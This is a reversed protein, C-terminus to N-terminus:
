LSNPGQALLHMLEAQSQVECKTFIQKLHTRVTNPSVRLSAASQEVNRGAFLHRAVEAQARTLEYLERLLEVSIDRRGNTAYIYAALVVTRSDASAAVPSVLVFYSQGRSRKLRAAISRPAGARGPRCQELLRDFRGELAPDTFRLRGNRVAIGDGEELVRLAPLNADLARGEADILIVGRDLHDLVARGLPTFTTGPQPPGSARQTKASGARGGNPQKRPRARIRTEATIAAEPRGRRRM